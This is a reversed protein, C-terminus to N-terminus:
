KLVSDIYGAIGGGTILKQIDHATVALILIILIIMGVTHVMHEIRPVVKRGFVSEIAIFLLRGGDLAPFPMANLIALNVSLVGLFNILSLVGFKAAQSTLAFIGVPGAVDKPVVGSFLDKFIQFFGTLVITGWFIAEKFGYYVGIFPRQWIPPYYLEVNSILVGLAGEGEPPDERPVAVLEQTEGNRLITLKIEKGKNADVVGILDGNSTIVKGNIDKIIDNVLLGSTHAPSGVRVEIVHVNQSERPIGSFSYVVSFAAIALAFNMFVGALIIVLRQIKGKHLFARSSNTIEEETNEGHLRVFGGFPLLNISYITEGIKKGLVRPPLGFGFEEVWVGAKRAAIFHGFEHVLILISLVVLFTLISFLM